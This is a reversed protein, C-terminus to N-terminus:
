AGRTESFIAALATLGLVVRMDIPAGPVRHVDFANGWLRRREVARAVERLGNPTHLRLHYTTPFILGGLPLKRRLLVMWGSDVSFTGREQGGADFLLWVPKFISKWGKRRVVALVGNTASDIVQFSANFDLIKQTALRWLEQQQDPGTWVRVDERLKFVKQKCFGVTTGAPSEIHYQRGFTLRKEVVRAHNVNWNVM